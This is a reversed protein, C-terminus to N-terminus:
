GQSIFVSSPTTEIISFIHENGLLVMVHLFKRRFRGREFSELVYGRVKRITFDVLCRNLCLSDRLRTDYVCSMWENHVEEFIFGKRRYLKPRFYKRAVNGQKRDSNELLECSYWRIVLTASYSKWLFVRFFHFSSGGEQLTKTLLWLLNWKWM